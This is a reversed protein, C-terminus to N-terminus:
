LLREAWLARGAQHLHRTAQAWRTALEGGDDADLRTTWRGAVDAEV